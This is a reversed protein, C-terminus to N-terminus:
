RLCFTYNQTERAGFSIEDDNHSEESITVTGTIGEEVPEGRLQLKVAQELDVDLFYVTSEDDEGGFWRWTRDEDSEPHYVGSGFEIRKETNGIDVSLINEGDADILVLERCLFALHRNGYTVTRNFQLKFATMSVIESGSDRGDITLGNNSQDINDSNRRLGFEDIESGTGSVHTDTISVTSADTINVGTRVRQSLNLQNPSEVNNSEVNVNEAANIDIGTYATDVIENDIIRIDSNPRGETVENEAPAHFIGIASPTEGAFYNLGAREIHNDRIEINEAWRKPAFVHRTDCRVMVAWHSSGSLVNNEVVGPGSTIQILRARLNRIENNRIEFGRNSTRRNSLYDGEALDDPLPEEFTVVEPPNPNRTSEHKTEVDSLPPLEGKRVATPSLVDLTDGVKFEVGHNSGVHITNEDVIDTVWGMRAQLAIGDDHLREIYCNDITPGGDCNAFHFGDANSGIARNSDSPPALTCEVLEPRECQLFHVSFAPSAAVAINELCPDAVERFDMAHVGIRPIIALVRGQKLGLPTSEENLILEYRREADKTISEFEKDMPGDQAKGGVFEGDQTHVSAHVTDAVSFAEHDLDLHSNSDDIEITIRNKDESLELIEGQTFPFPDYDLTLNRIEVGTSQFFHLTGLTPDTFIFTAGNGEITVDELGITELHASQEGEIPSEPAPDFTYKDSEIQLTSGPNDSLNQFSQMLEEIGGGSFTVEHSNDQNNTDDNTTAQTDESDSGNNSQTSCGAIGAIVGSGLTGLVKRRRVIPYDNMNAPMDSM